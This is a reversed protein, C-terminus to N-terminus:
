INDEAQIERRFIMINEEARDKLAASAPWIDKLSDNRVIKLYISKLITSMVWAYGTLRGKRDLKTM